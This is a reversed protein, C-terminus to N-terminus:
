FLQIQTPLQEILPKIVESNDSENKTVNIKVPIAHLHHEEKVQLLHRITQKDETNLWVKYENENLLAPMRKKSNHITSMLLDAEKTIISCTPILEGTEPNLWENYVGAFLLLENNKASIYYPKKQQNNQQWEFFGDAIVVCKKGLIQHKYSPKEFLSESRANITNLRFANAENITKIFSPILGWFAEKLCLPNEQQLVSIKPFHFANIHFRPREKIDAFLTWGHKTALKEKNSHFSLHYCM